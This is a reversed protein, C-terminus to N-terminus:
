QNQIHPQFEYKWCEWPHNGLAPHASGGSCLVAARAPNVVLDVSHVKVIEKVTHNPWPLVPRRQFRYPLGKQPPILVSVSSAIPGGPGPSSSPASVGSDEDFSPNILIGVIDRVSRQTLAHDPLLPRRGVSPPSQLVAPPFHWGNGLGSTIALIEYEGSPTPTPNSLALTLRIPNPM